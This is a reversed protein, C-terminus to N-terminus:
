AGIVSAVQQAIQLLGGDDGPKGIIQMAAPLAGATAPLPISIAPFGALNFPATYTMLAERLTGSWAGISVEESHRVPAVCPCTPLLLYDIDAMAAHLRAAFQRRSQQADAYAALRMARARTLRDVTQAGYSAVIRAWDNRRFHEIGGEVLVICAFADCAGDFLGSTDIPICPFALQLRATASDFAEGVGASLPVPAIERIVGLRLSTRVDSDPSTIDLASALLRVDSVERGLWGVHDCSPALAFVGRTSLRGWTPKFGVVGCLAAPIRVSGGTDTGVGAMVAGYAIAAAMGGSSGGPIRSPDLPNLTDGFAESETTVGWAFEHTTTKGIIVAGQASLARVIDADVTPVNGRYTAAGYCTEVDKTDILDKVAIPLGELLRATGNAIRRDSESAAALAGAHDLAAFANVDRKCHEATELAQETVAVASIARMALMTRLEALGPARHQHTRLSPLVSM